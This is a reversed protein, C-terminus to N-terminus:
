VEKLYEFNGKNVVIEVTYKTKSVDKVFDLIEGTEIDTGDEILEEVKSKDFREVVATEILNNHNVRLYELMKGENYELKRTTRTSFTGNSVSISKKRPNKEKEKNLYENLHYKYFDIKSDLNREMGELWEVVKKIEAEAFAKYEARKDEINKITRMVSNVDSLDKIEFKENEM